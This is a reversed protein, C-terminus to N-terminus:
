VRLFTRFDRGGWYRRWRGRGERVWGGEEGVEGMWEGISLLLVAVRLVLVTV